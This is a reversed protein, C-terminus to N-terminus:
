CGFICRSVDESVVCDGATWWLMDMDGSRRPFVRGARVIIGGNDERQTSREISSRYICQWCINVLYRDHLLFVFTREWWGSENHMEVMIAGHDYACTSFSTTWLYERDLEIVDCPINLFIVPIFITLTWVQVRTGLWLNHYPLTIASGFTRNITSCHLHLDYRRM